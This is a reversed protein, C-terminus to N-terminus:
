GRIGTGALVLEGRNKPELLPEDPAAYVLKKAMVGRWDKVRRQLTRLQADGFRNPHAKRLRALLDKASTDPDKELWLLVDCWVGEFPDKRTRWHRPPRVRAKHTPRAGRNGCAPCAPWFGTWAKVPFLKRLSRHPYQQWHRSPRESPGCCGWRTWGPATNM